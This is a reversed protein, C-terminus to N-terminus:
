RTAPAASRSRALHQLTMELEGPSSSGTNWAMSSFAVRMQSALNPLRNSNSPSANRTTACAHRAARCEVFQPLALRQEARGPCGDEAADDPRLCSRGCRRCRPLGAYRSAVADDGAGLEAACARKEGHRHELVVLQDAGDGDVALLHPREGVLLDLQHVFKAACATMAMSFVRSSLSSRWRVSSRVSDSSCCVAVESTSLTMVLEGPSRCGTNSAMSASRPRANALGVEARQQATRPRRDMGRRPRSCSAARASAIAHARYGRARGRAAYTSPAGARDCSRACERRPPHRRGVVQPRLWAVAEARSARSEDTTGISLSSSDIPAM